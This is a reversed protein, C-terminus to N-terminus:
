TGVAERLRGLDIRVMVLLEAPVVQWSLGFRDMPWQCQEERSVELLGNRARGKGAEAGARRDEVRLEQRKGRVSRLPWKTFYM